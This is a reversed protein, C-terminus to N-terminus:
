AATACVWLSGAGRPTMPVARLTVRPVTRVDWHTKFPPGMPSVGHGGDRGVGGRGWRGLAAYVGQHEAVHQQDADVARGLAIAPRRGHEALQGFGVGAEIVVGSQAHAQQMGHAVMERGPQVQRGDAGVHLAAFLGDGFAQHLRVVVAQGAVPAAGLRHHHGDLADAERHADLQHQARVDHDRRVVAAKRLHLHLAADHGRAARRQAHGLARARAIRQQM